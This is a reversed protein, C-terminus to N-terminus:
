QGNAIPSQRHRAEVPGLVVFIVQDESHKIVEALESELCAKEAPNLDCEFVSFQLHDGYNTCVKLVRRLRKADSIDYCVLYTSRVIRFDLTWLGFDLDAPPSPVYDPIEGTLVKATSRASKKRSGPRTAATAPKWISLPRRASLRVRANADDGIEMIPLTCLQQKRRDPTDLFAGSNTASMWWTAGRQATGFRHNRMWDLQGSTWWGPGMLQTEDLVWWADNNLLGFPMPWRYRSRGYGRNLARSLLMDQTGILICPREPYLDWERKAPELEEGGM